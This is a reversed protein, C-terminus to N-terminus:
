NQNISMPCLSKGWTAFVAAIREVAPSTRLGDWVCAARSAPISVEM